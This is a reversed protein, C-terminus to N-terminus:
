RALADGLVLVQSFSLLLSSRICFRGIASALLPIAYPGYEMGRLAGPSGLSWPTGSVQLPSASTVCM